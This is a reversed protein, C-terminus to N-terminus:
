YKTDSKDVRRRWRTRTTAAGAQRPSGRRPRATARGRRSGVLNGCGENDPLVTSRDPTCCTGGSRPSCTRSSRACGPPPVTTLTLVPEAARLLAWLILIAVFVFELQPTGLGHMEPFRMNVTRVFATSHRPSCRSVQRAWSRLWGGGSPAVDRRVSMLPTWV